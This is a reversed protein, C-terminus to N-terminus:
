GRSAADSGGSRQRVAAPPRVAITALPIVHALVPATLSGTAEFLLGWVSGGVVGLVVLLMNSAMLQVGAYVMVAVALGARPQLLGRFLLEEGTGMLVIAVVMHTNSTLERLEFLEDARDALSGVYRRALPYGTRAALYAFLGVGTGLAVDTLRVSWLVSGFRGGPLLMVLGGVSLVAGVTTARSWFGTRSPVFLVFWAAFAVGIVVAVVM